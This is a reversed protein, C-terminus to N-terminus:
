FNYVFIFFTILLPFLLLVSLSTFGTSFMLLVGCLKRSIVGTCLSARGECVSHSWAYLFILPLYGRVSFNGSDTSDDSHTECLFFIDPSNSELLSECDIFNSCLGQINTFSLKLSNHYYLCLENLKFLNFISLYATLERSVLGLLLKQSGSQSSMQRLFIVGLSRLFILVVLFLQQSVSVHAFM